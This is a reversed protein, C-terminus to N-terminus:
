NGLAEDVIDELRHLEHWHTFKNGVRKDANLLDDIEQFVKEAHKLDSDPIDDLDDWRDLDYIYRDPVPNSKKLFELGAKVARVKDRVGLHKNISM